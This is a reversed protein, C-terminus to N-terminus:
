RQKGWGSRKVTLIKGQWEHKWVGTRRCEALDTLTERNEARGDEIDDDSALYIGIEHPPDKSVAVFIFKDAKQGALALVDLYFAAQRHYGWRSVTRSWSSPDVPGDVTKLDVVLGNELLRDPKCKLQLGSGPDVAAFIRENYGLQQVLLEWADPENAIALFLRSLLIFDKESLMTKAKVACASTNWIAPGQKGPRRQYLAFQGPKDYEFLLAHLASGVKMSATPPDSQMTRHVRIAAYKAPSERFLELSSHSDGSAYDAHYSESSIQSSQAVRAYAAANESVNESM